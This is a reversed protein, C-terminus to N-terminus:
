VHARGIEQRPLGYRNVLYRYGSARSGRGYEHNGPVAWVRSPYASLLPGWSRAIFKRKFDTKTTARWVGAVKRGYTVDGPLLVVSPALARTLRATRGQAGTTKYAIDGVAVVTVSDAARAPAPALLAAAMAVAVCVRVHM